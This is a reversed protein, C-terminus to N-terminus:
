DETFAVIRPALEREQFTWGRTSWITGTLFNADEHTLRNMSTVIKMPMDQEVFPIRIETQWMDRPTTVGLLGSNANMGTAAVLTILSCSYINAM